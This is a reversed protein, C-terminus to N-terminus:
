DENRTTSCVLLGDGIAILSTTLNDMGRAAEVTDRIIITDDDLNTDDVVKGGLFVHNLVLLGGPRLIRLGEELYEPYELYEADVFVMDYAGPTLKPLVTLADGTILRFRTHAIDAAKLIERAAGHHEAECDVSTLLGEPKMGAFFALTSVGTGTGVEVIATADIIHALFTLFQATAPTVPELGLDKAARRAQIIHPSEIISAEM